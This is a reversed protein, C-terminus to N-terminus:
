ASVCVVDCIQTVEVISGVSRVHDPLFSHLKARHEFEMPYEIEDSTLRAREISMAVTVLALSTEDLLSLLFCVTSPM